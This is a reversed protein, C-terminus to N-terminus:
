PFLCPGSFIIIRYSNPFYYAVNTKLARSEFCHDSVIATSKNSGGGGRRKLYSPPREKQLGGCVCNAHKWHTPFSREQFVELFKRKWFLTRFIKGHFCACPISSYFLLLLIFFLFIRSFRM